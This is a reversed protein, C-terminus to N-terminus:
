VNFELTDGRIQVPPRPRTIVVEGLQVPRSKLTITHPAVWQGAPLQTPAYSMAHVRILVNKLSGAPLVITFQGQANSKTYTLYTTDMGQFAHVSIVASPIGQGQEDQVKGTQALTSGAAVLLFLISYFAYNM